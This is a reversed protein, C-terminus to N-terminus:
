RSSRTTSRSIPILHIRTFATTIPFPTSCRTRRRMRRIKLGFAAMATEILYGKLADLAMSALCGGIGGSLCELTEKMKIMLEVAEVAAVLFAWSDGEAKAATKIAQISADPLIPINAPIVVEFAPYFLTDQGVDFKGDQCEDYVVGYVGAGLNGGPATFAIIEDIFLGGSALQVTNHANNVDVLKAGNALSSATVVYIDTAPFIFDCTGPVGQGQYISVAGNPGFTTFSNGNESWWLSQAAATAPSFLCAVVVCIAASVRASVFGVSKVVSM